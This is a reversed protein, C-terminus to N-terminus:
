KVVAAFGLAKPGVHTGIITTVNVLLPQIINDPSYHNIFDEGDKEANTHLIALEELSGLGALTEGLEQIGKKKTRTMGRNIVKGASLEIVPKIHLLSGIRAKAWSVRGSRHIYELTDLLAFVTLRSQISQIGNLIVEISKGKQADRAAQLVQFGLGLSLQQSDIVEVSQEFELAALRAANFIGSLNSAAHISLIETYGKEFLEQYLDQFRGSSPAATTPLQKLNPLRDYFDNRSIDFGDQYTKNELILDAPIQYIKLEELLSQPIDSTSDTVIATPL